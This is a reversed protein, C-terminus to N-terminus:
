NHSTVITHTLFVVFNYKSKIKSDAYLSCNVLLLNVGEECKLKRNVFSQFHLNHYM